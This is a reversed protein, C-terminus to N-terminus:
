EADTQRQTAYLHSNLLKTTVLALPAMMVRAPNMLVRGLEGRRMWHLILFNIPTVVVIKEDYIPFRTLAEAIWLGRACAAVETSGYM